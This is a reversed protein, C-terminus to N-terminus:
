TRALWDRLWQPLIARVSAIFEDTEDALKAYAYPASRGWHAEFEEDTLKQGLAEEERRKLQQLHNASM